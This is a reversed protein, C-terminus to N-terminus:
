GWRSTQPRMPLQEEELRVGSCSACWRGAEADVAGVGAWSAGHSLPEVGASELGDVDGEAGKM